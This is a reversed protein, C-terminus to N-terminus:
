GCPESEEEISQQLWDAQQHLLLSEFGEPYAFGLGEIEARVSAYRAEVEDDSLHAYPNGANPGELARLRRELSVVRSM